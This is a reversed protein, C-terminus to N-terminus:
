GFGRAGALLVCAGQVVVWTGTSVGSWPLLRALEFGTRSLGPFASDYVVPLSDGVEKIPISGRTWVAKRVRTVGAQDSYEYRFYWKDQYVILHRCTGVAKVGSHRLRVQTYLRAVAIPAVAVTPGYLIVYSVWFPFVHSSM